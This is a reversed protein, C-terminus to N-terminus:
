VHKTKWGYRVYTAVEAMIVLDRTVETITPLDEGAGVVGVDDIPAGLDRLFQSMDKLKIVEVQPPTYLGFFWGILGPLNATIDWAFKNFDDNAYKQTMNSIMTYYTAGKDESWRGRNRHGWFSRLWEVPERVVTVIRTYDWRSPLAHRHGDKKGHGAEQTKDMALVFSRGGCKPVHLYCLDGDNFVFAM